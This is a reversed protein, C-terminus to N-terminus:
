PFALHGKPPWYLIQAPWGLPKRFALGVSQAVGLVHLDEDMSPMLWLLSAMQPGDLLLHDAHATYSQQAGNLYKRSDYRGQWTGLFFHNKVTEM